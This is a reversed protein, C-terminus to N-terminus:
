EKKKPEGIKPTPVPSMEPLESLQYEARKPDANFAQRQDNYDAIKNNLDLARQNLVRHRKRNKARPRRPVNARDSEISQAEAQMEGLQKMLANRHDLLKQRDPNSETSAPEAEHEQAEAAPATQSSPAQDSSVTEPATAEIKVGAPPPQNSFRKVGNEDIWYYLKALSAAPALSLCVALLLPLLRRM